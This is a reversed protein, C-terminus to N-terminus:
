TAVPAADPAVPGGTRHAPEAAPPPEATTAILPTVWASREDADVFVARCLLTMPVALVAGLPGLLFTWVVLSLFTIEASLGVSAGVFRPQIFTQITVNLVSYVLVVLLMQRWGADLLALLAPPIVGIVFGINPIFNTVFSFFGWVLPLPVGLLWLAGTDLVAVIAGFLATMVLYRQTSTVFRALAAAVAPKSRALVAMRPGFGHVATVFFFMLTVLFFLTSLFGLVGSLVGTLWDTVKAPDFQRLADDSAGSSLGAESLSQQADDTLGRATDTYQPLIEVLKALCLATGLVLVALIAYSVVLAVLTALWGPWGRRRAWGDVPLVAITLALALMAPAVIEAAARLGTAVAAAAALGLLVVVSRPLAPSSVDEPGATPDRTQIPMSM